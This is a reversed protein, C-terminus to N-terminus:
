CAGRKTRAAGRLPPAHAFPRLARRCERPALGAAEPPV